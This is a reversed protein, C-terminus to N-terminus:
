ASEEAERGPDAQANGGPQNEKARGNKIEGQHTLCAGALIEDEFDIELKGDEGIMLEMLNQLNKAYLASANAPM